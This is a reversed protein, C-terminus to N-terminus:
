PTLLTEIRRTTAVVDHRTTILQRAAEVRSKAAERTTAFQTIAAALSAPSKPEAWQITPQDLELEVTGGCRTAIVPTSLAFAELVVNPMGEFHSPLVLADATAIAPMPNAMRSLFVVEHRKLAARSWSELESRLPGDGVLWLCIPPVLPNEELLGLADLLDQQGKEVTMRGVCVLTLRQDRKPAPARALAHIYQCDVPNVITEIRSRDLGYFKAASDAALDSVAVIGKSAQYARTLRRHKLWLFKKEVLPFAHEPPSVITSVRPVLPRNIAGAVMTMQFTRDYIVDIFQEDVVNQLHRVHARYVRGPFYVSNRLPVDDFAHVRVDEPIGALLDGIREHLYLHPEFRQRDLHRLLLLVQQESGGGRM